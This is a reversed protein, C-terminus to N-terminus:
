GARGDRRPQLFWRGSRMAWAASAASWAAAAIGLPLEPGQPWLGAAVRFVTALQVLAFLLVAIADMAQTRGSRTAAIRTAMVLLTSGCFGLTMAHLAAMACARSAGGRHSVAGLLLAVCLWGFGTFLMPM